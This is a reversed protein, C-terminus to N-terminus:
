LEAMMEKDLLAQEALIITAVQLIYAPVEELVELVEEAEMSLM